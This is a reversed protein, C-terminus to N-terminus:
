CGDGGATVPHMDIRFGNPTGHPYITLDRFGDPVSTRMMGAPSVPAFQTMGTGGQPLDMVLHDDGPAHMSPVRFLDLTAPSSGFFPNADALSTLAPLCSGDAARVAHDFNDIPGQAAFYEADPLTEKTTGWIRLLGRSSLNGFTARFPVRESETWMGNAPNRKSVTGEWAGQLTGDLVKGPLLVVPAGGTVRIAPTTGGDVAVSDRSGTLRYITYVYRYSAMRLGVPGVAPPADGYFNVGDTVSKGTSDLMVYAKGDRDVIELRAGLAVYFTTADDPPLHVFPRDAFLTDCITVADGDFTRGAHETACVNSPPPAADAADTPADTSSDTTTGGDSAPAADSGSDSAPPEPQSSSSSPSCAGGLAVLFLGCLSKM